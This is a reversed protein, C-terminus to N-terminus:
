QLFPYQCTPPLALSTVSSFDFDLRVSLLTENRSRHLMEAACRLESPNSSTIRIYSWLFPAGLAIERWTHCVHTVVTWEIFDRFERKEKEDASIRKLEVFILLLVESPVRLIPFQDQTEVVTSSAVPKKGEEGKKSNQIQRGITGISAASTNREM